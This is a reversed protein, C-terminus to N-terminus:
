LLPARADWFVLSHLDRRGRLYSTTTALRPTRGVVVNEVDKTLQSVRALAVVYGRILMPDFESKASATLWAIDSPRRALAMVNAAIVRHYSPQNRDRCIVAAYATIREPVLAGRDLYAALLWASVFASTNREPDAFYSTLGDDVHKRGLFPHLYQAVASAHPALQEVSRIVTRTMFHDRLIRLRYLSFLAHRDNVAGARAFSGRLIQRLRNAALPKVDENFWYQAEDLASDTLSAIAEGGVLLETKHGALGLGRRRCERELARVGEIVERRSRGLVHIDDLYRLYKWDGTAMQEDVPILYLNGLTRSVDPGQPIGRGPVLAWESLMRKLASAVARDPCVRDIDAFLLRHEVNDFYSTIDTKVMWSYGANILRITEQRWALWQDRGNLNLYRANTSLRASYVSDSLSREIRDAFSAVSAHLALRDDLAFDSGPRTAFPSKPIEVITAPEFPGPGALKTATSALLPVRDALADEYALIDPVWLARLDRYELQTLARELDVSPQAVPPRTTTGAGAPAPVARADVLWQRGIKTGSLRGTSVWRRVTSVPKGLRGAAEEVTLHPDPM